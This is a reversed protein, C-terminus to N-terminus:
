LITRSSQLKKNETVSKNKVVNGNQIVVPINEANQLIAIDTLPNGKVMILDALKGEEVTGLEDGRLIIEAGTRTAAMLAEMPSMGIQTLLELEMANKGYPMMSRDYIFDTGTGIKIGAEYAKRAANCHIEYIGDVKERTWPVLKDKNKTLLYMTSLTPVLWAGKKEMLEICRDDLFTGHEISKVGGVLANYIGTVGEAHTAVYTGKLEAEEVFTRIEEVTFNAHTPCDGESMVGGTTCIKIFDANDRFMLRAGKRCEEVGDVILVGSLGTKSFELPFSQLEDGHGGTDSILKGSSFIRPSRIKGQKWVKKLFNATGGVDRILTYGADLLESLEELMYVTEEYPNTCYFALSSPKGSNGIHCHQEILGPMITGKELEIIQTDDPIHLENQSCVQVIRDDEVVVAANEMMSAGTCPIVNGKLVIM